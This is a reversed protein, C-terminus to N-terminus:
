PREELDATLYPQEEITPIEHHQLKFLQENDHSQKTHTTRKTRADSNSGDYTTTETHTMTLWTVELLKIGVIPHDVLPLSDCFSTDGFANSPPKSSLPILSM